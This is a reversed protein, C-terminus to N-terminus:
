DRYDAHCSFPMPEQLVLKFRGCEPGLDNAAQKAVLEASVQRYLFPWKIVPVFTKPPRCLAFHANKNEKRKANDNRASEGIRATRFRVKCVSIEKGKALM